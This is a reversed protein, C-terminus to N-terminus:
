TFSKLSLPQAKNPPNFCITDWEPLYTGFESCFHPGILNKVFEYYKYSLSNHSIESSRM